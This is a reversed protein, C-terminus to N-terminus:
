HTAVVARHLRVENGVAHGELLDIREAVLQELSQGSPSGAGRQWASRRGGGSSHVPDPTSPSFNISRDDDEPAWDPETRVVLDLPVLGEVDGPQGGSFNEARWAETLEASV